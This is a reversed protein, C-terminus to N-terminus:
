GQKKDANIDRCLNIIEHFTKLKNKILADAAQNITTYILTEDTENQDKGIINEMLNYVSFFLVEIEKPVIWISDELAVIPDDFQKSLEELEDEKNTTKESSDSKLYTEIAEIINGLLKRDIHQSLGNEPDRYTLKHKDAYADWIPLAQKTLEVAIRFRKNNSLGKIYEQLTM